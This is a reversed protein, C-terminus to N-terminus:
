KIGFIINWIKTLLTPKTTKLIINCVKTAQSYDGLGQTSYDIPKPTYQVFINTFVLLICFAIISFITPVIDFNTYTKLIIFLTILIMLISMKFKINNKIIELIGYSKNNIYKSVMLLPFIICFLNILFSTIPIIFIGVIFFIFSFICIYFISWYWTFLGWMNGNYWDYYQSKEIPNLPKKISFLLHINYFWLFILYLVNIIGTLFFVFFSMYPSFAIILTEPLFSNIFNYVNNIINFNNSILEQLTTAIYLKYINTNQGHIMDKLFDLTKNIIKFNETLPFKIKTSSAGESSLWKLKVINIEIPIEIIPSKINTYPEYALCTPLINSQSVKCVHLFLSGFIIIICMIVIQYLIGLFYDLLPNTVQKKDKDKKEDIASTNLTNSNSM